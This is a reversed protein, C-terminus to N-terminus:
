DAKEIRCILEGQACVDGVSVGLGAVIGSQHAVVANEMKVAEVAAILDGKEVRDGESVRVKVITGQMPTMVSDGTAEVAASERASARIVEAREVMDELGPMTIRHVDRGVRVEVVNRDATSVSSDRDSDLLSDLNLGIWSTHVKFEGSAATLDGHALIAVDLPLVTPVGEVALEALARRARALATPRDKGTVILKGLMSDYWEAAEGGSEVGADLRLGPGRPFEWATIPGPVPRFGAGPDESNIRFEISHGRPEPTGDLRLNEGRVISFQESVLDVWTTEETVPHEVQLRTNVELFSISGDEGVLFEVTGAGVYGAAEGIRGSADIIEATQAFSLFPVPAEEVLKQHRRQLSCDRTGVVVAKGFRDVLLQAEVHRPREIYREVFCEGRGFAAAAERTASEWESGIAARDHVVRLGRGGGGFAAKIAIPMGHEAVFNGIEAVPAVPEATGPTLPAGVERAVARAKVRDGLTEIASPPPGIWVLGADIVARAFEASESLFGYGPHVAQADSALAVDILRDINLYTDAPSTGALSYAEDAGSVHFAHADADSYVAIARLGEDSAARLVRVAIEGSNAVLLSTFDGCRPQLDTTM